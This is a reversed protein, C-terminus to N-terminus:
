SFNRTHYALYHNNVNLNTNGGTSTIKIRYLGQEPRTKFAKIFSIKTKNEEIITHSEPKPGFLSAKKEKEIIELKYNDNADKKLPFYFYPDTFGSKNERTVLEGDNITFETSWDDNTTYELSKSNFFPNSVISLTFNKSDNRKIKFWNGGFGGAQQFKFLTGDKEESLVVNDGSSSLYRVIGNNETGVGTLKIIYETKGDLLPTDVEEFLSQDQFGEQKKNMFYYGVMAIVVTLLIGILIIAKKM